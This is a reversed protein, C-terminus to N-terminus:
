AVYSRLGATPEQERLETLADRELQRVRERSLGLERGIEDLTHPRGDVLGYRLRMVFATREPLADLATELRDQLEAFEVMEAATPADADSIFEGLVADGDDGVPSDLSIPDRGHRLVERIKEPTEDLAEALEEITVDRGLEQSMRRQMRLAKSIQEGMHVPVRITRGQEYVARQLAQRIWWTAYTSFKFGKTYDFKEVARVLGLNGEQILDLLSLGHGQYRKALSVVLRLNAELMRQKAAEGIAAVASLDRRRKDSPKRGIGADALRLKEAAFVGAEIAKSLEVEDAANLLPVRGIETLYLRLTDATADDAADLDPVDREEREVVNSETVPAENETINGPRCALVTGVDTDERM